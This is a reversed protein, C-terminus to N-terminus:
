LMFEYLTTDIILFSFFLISLSPFSWLHFGSKKTYQVENKTRINGNLVLLILSRRHTLPRDAEQDLLRVLIVM